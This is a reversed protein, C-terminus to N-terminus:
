NRKVKTLRMTQLEGTAVNALQLLYQGSHWHTPLTSLQTNIDLLTGKTNWVTRGMIDTVRLTYQAGNDQAAKIAFGQDFPNPFISIEKLITINGISNTTDEIILEYTDQGSIEDSCIGKMVLSVMYNGWTS